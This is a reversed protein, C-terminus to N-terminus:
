RRNEIVMDGVMPGPPLHDLEWRIAQKEEEPLADWEAALRREEATPERIVGVAKLWALLREQTIPEGPMPPSVKSKNGALDAVTAELHEVRTKLALVEQEVSAM